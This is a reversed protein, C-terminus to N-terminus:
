VQSALSKQCIKTKKWIEPSLFQIMIERHAESYKQLSLLESSVGISYPARVIWHNRTNNAYNTLM